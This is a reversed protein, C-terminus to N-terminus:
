DTHHAHAAKVALQIAIAILLAAFTIASLPLFLSQWDGCAGVDRGGDRGPDTRSPCRRVWQRPSQDHNWRPEDPHQGAVRHGQCDRREPRVGVGLGPRHHDRWRNRLPRVDCRHPCRARRLRRRDTAFSDTDWCTWPRRDIPPCRHPRDVCHVALAVVEVAAKAVLPQRHDGRRHCRDLDTWGRHHRRRCADLLDRLQSRHSHDSGALHGCSSTIWASGGVLLPVMVIAGGIAFLGSLVGGIAGTVILSGWPTGAGALFISDRSAQVLAVDATATLSTSM